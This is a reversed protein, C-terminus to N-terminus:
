DAGGGSREEFPVRWASALRELQAALSADVRGLATEICCADRECSPDARVEFALAEPQQCARAHLRARLADAQEPHVILTMAAGPVIDRAATEALALLREDRAFAGMLKRVVRLALAAIESRLLAREAASAAALATLTAAREEEFARAGAARGQAFGETQAQACAADIQAQREGRLAELRECLQLADTLVPVEAARLVRRPSAVGIDRGRQWLLYSM